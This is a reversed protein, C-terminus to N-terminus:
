ISTLGTYVAAQSPVLFIKVYQCKVPLVECRLIGIPQGDADREILGGPPNPTDANIGALRLAESSAVGCHLDTRTLFAPAAGLAQAAPIAAPAADPPPVAHPLLPPVLPLLSRVVLPTLLPSNPASPSLPQM